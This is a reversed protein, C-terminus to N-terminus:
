KLTAWTMVSLFIVWAGFLTTAVILFWPHKQPGGSACKGPQNKETTAVNRKDRNKQGASKSKSRSKKKSM